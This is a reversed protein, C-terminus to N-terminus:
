VEMAYPDPYGLAHLVRRERSEMEAAQQASTEHDYGQLHLLGHVILHAYHAELPKGQEAAERAVVPACLFSLSNTAYRRHRYDRNLRRAEDADVFRVTIQGRRKGDVDIAARAWTRVQPKQPLENALCAYQVGVHLRKSAAPMSERRQRRRM